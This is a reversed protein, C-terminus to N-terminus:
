RTHQSLFRAELNRREMGQQGPVESGSITHRPPGKRPPPQAGQGGNARNGNEAIKQVVEKVADVLENAGRAGFARLQEYLAPDVEWEHSYSGGIIDKYRMTVRVHQELRGERFMPQLNGLM